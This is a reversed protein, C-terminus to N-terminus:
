TVKNVLFRSLRCHASQLRSWAELYTQVCSNGRPATAVTDPGAAQLDVLNMFTREVDLLAEGVEENLAGWQEEQKEVM